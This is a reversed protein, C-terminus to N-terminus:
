HQTESACQAVVLIDNNELVMCCGTSSKLEKIMKPRQRYGGSKPGYNHGHCCCLLATNSDLEFGWNQLAYVSVVSSFPNITTTPWFAYM